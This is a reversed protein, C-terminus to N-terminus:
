SNQYIYFLYKTISINHKAITILIVKKLYTCLSGCNLKIKICFTFDILIKDSYRAELNMAGIDAVVYALLFAVQTEM